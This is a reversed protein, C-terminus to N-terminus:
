GDDEESTNLERCAARQLAALLTAEDVPKRLVQVGAADAARQLGDSQDASCLVVALGPQQLRLRETAALGDDNARLRYDVLAADFPQEQLLSLATASDHAVLARCGAGQLMRAYSRAIAEDDDLVLVRKGRMAVVAPGPAPAIAPLPARGPRVFAPPIHLSFCAGEGPASAVSIRLGLLDVLRRVISLGLGYGHRRDRAENGLQVLEDFIRTQDQEAIGAGTDRVEVVVGGAVGDPAARLVVEGQQTYKVANDVLNALLRHMLEPDSDIQWRDPCDLRLVLGKALAQARFTVALGDLLKRLEFLRPRVPWRGTDYQSLDLLGDLMTRLADVSEAMDAALLRAEALDQSRSLAASNLALAQMPQRLDHSASALFRSKAMSAAEAVDKAEVLREREERLRNALELNERRMHFSEDFTESARRAFKIQISYVVLVLAALSWGLVGGQWAWMLAVLGFMPASFAYFARLIVSNTAVSASGWSIMLMTLLADQTTSLGLMFLAALSNVLGLVGNWVVVARVRAAVPRRADGPLPRVAWARWERVLVAALVWGVVAVPAAAGWSIAGVVSAALAIQLRLRDGQEVLVQLQREALEDDVPAQM